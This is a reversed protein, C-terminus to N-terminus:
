TRAPSSASGTEFAERREPYEDITRQYTTAQWEERRHASGDAM